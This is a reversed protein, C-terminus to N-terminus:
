PGAALPCIQARRNWRHRPFFHAIQSWSIADTMGATYGILGVTSIAIIISGLTAAIGSNSKNPKHLTSSIIAAASILFSVTTFFAMRGPHQSLTAIYPKFFLQDIGLINKNLIYEFLTPITILCSLLCATISLPRLKLNAAFLGVSCLIFCLATNYQMPAYNPFMQFLAPIRAHWGIIAALAFLAVISSGSLIFQRLFCSWCTEKASQDATKDDAESVANGQEEM